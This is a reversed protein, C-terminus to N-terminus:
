EHGNAGNSGAFGNGLHMHPQFDDESEISDAKAHLDAAMFRLREATALDFTARALRQCTTAQQRLYEALPM